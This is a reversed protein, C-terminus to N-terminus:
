FKELKKLFLQELIEQLTKWMKFFKRFEQLTKEFNAVIEKYIKVIVGIIIWLFQVSNKKIKGFKRLYRWM